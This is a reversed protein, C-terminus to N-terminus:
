FAPKLTFATSLGFESTTLPMTNSWFGAPPPVAALPLSITMVTEDPGSITVTGSTFVIDSASALALSV